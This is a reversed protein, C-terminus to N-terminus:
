VAPRQPPKGKVISTLESMLSPWITSSKYEIRTVHESLRRKEEATLRMATLVVIPISRYQEQARLRNVFEFGDMGPMMLDLLILSPIAQSVKELGELANAAEGIKWGDRDLMRRVRQRSREDDDIILVSGPSGNSRFKRLIAMLREPHVPKTLYDSAGLTFGRNKDDVISVMIVPIDAVDPDAKLAALIDWGNTDNMLVDLTIAIPRYQKALSLVERGQGSEVIHFGERTLFRTMLDRATADDDIVLVTKREDDGSLVASADASSLTDEKRATARDAPLRLTFASGEGLRSEVSISGGMMHCFRQSIALGLGTGGYKRTTSADAQHFPKFLRSLQDPTIGIGTDRIWFVIEGGSSDNQRSADFWITGNKTFKCANSLFNFLIQRLKVLDGDMWGLDSSCEVAITNNNAAASPQVTNVVEDIMPRIEFNEIFLQAEGAEIKSLDLIDNILGLLHKGASHIKKLDPLADEQGLDQVEEQLLESYGIIANLPTRLEHSMNALFESKSRNADEAREKASLAEKQAREREEIEKHLERTREEVLRSFHIGRAKLTRVRFRFCGWGFCAACGMCLGYFWKTQYFAPVLQFKLNAGNWNWINDSNAAIVRFTYKGPPVKTYFATRRTGADVWNPDFGDLMYKFRVREPAHFSIGAYGFELDGRGASVRLPGAPNYSQRDIVVLQLLVPPPIHSVQTREPDISVIGAITPFWLRGRNDKCSSPQVGGNCERSRMGDSSDYVKSEIRNIEGRAYANLEHRSVRFIGQNCSMWLNDNSDELISYVSDNFLGQQTTVAIIKQQALRVLGGGSTGIWLVGEKDEYLANISEQLLGSDAGWTICQGDQLHVLGRNTGFWMAGLHDEFIFRVWDDSLGNQKTYHTFQGNQYRTVGNGMTGVWLSGDRSIYLARVQSIPAKPSAPLSFVRDGSLRNLGADSGVWIDGDKAAIVANIEDSLLGDRETFQKIQGNSRRFIGGQESGIWLAGNRDAAVSWISGEPLGEAESYALVSSTQLCNLGGGRTGIWLNGERDEFLALVQNDSLGNKSTYNTFRGGQLRSLGGGRTGVYVIGQRDVQVSQVEPHLLGARTSFHSFVGDKLHDLGGETGIWLSGDRDECISHVWDASLGEAKTYTTFRGNKFRSIGKRTGIWLSGDSTGRLAWIEDNPLGNRSSYTVSQDRSFGTLGGGLTGAWLVGASDMSLSSIHNHPLGNSTTLTTFKNGSFHILGGDTGAWLDGKDTALLVTIFNNRIGPDKARDFITFHIGDFRVLGDETGLWIYGDHTQAVANVSSQPLGDEIKWVRHNYQSFTRAPDIALAVDSFIAALPLSLLACALWRRKSKMIANFTHM